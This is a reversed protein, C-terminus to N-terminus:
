PGIVTTRTSAFDDFYLTGTVNGLNASPGLRVADLRFVATNLGTLTYLTGNLTLSATASAGAQWAIEIWNWGTSLIPQWGTFTLGNGSRVGYRVQPTGGSTRYQVQFLSLGTADVGQFIVLTSGNAATGNRNFYFRAHYQADLVPTGNTVYGGTGGGIVAQMGYLGTRAAAGTVSLGTGTTSTWASFSGSEFGDAFIANPLTTVVVVVSSTPGWNGAADKARVKVTHSTGAAWGTSNVDVTARVAETPSNFSGDVAVMPHGLGPGPDIGEVWEAGAIWTPVPAGAPDPDTATATLDFTAQGVIPNPSAAVNSVAPGTRDLIVAVPLVAGWNGVADQGHVYFTHPGETLANITTLPIWAYALESPTNFQGDLPTFRFGDGNNVPPRPWPPNSGPPYDIFGEGRRIASQVGGGGGSLLDQLRVNFRLSPTLPNYGIRGNTPNPQVSAQDSVPGTKDVDLAAGAWAGWNGLADQARVEILHRGEALAGMALAPITGDLSVVPAVPTPTLPVSAGGGIRYEGATVNSGGTMSDDGTARIAVAITGNSIPPNLRIGSTVPGAKDLNLVVYNYTGWNGLSDQGRVYITHMGAPLLSMDAVAITGRVAETPSDFSGDVAAMPHAPNTTADIAFEAASILNDGRGVDSVSGTLLVDVTGNAPNPVLALSGAVPGQPAGPDASSDIFTLMGGYLPMGTTADRAGNNHLLGSAEYLPFRTPPVNVGDPAAGRGQALLPIVVLADATDGAPLLESTLNRYFPLQSGGLSLFQQYLGLVAMTHIQQGANVYRLLLTQGAVVSIPVTDPYAKGNLLFYRAKYSRMDFAAPNAATNLAPDIESLVIPAEVNFATAADNYAYGPGLTPRVILAGYLGMPVQYQTGPLQGAEYLYIGPEAAVFSYVQTGGPPAGAMDPIISQGPFNLATPVTLGNHLTVNVTDGQTVVLSPGPVQAPGGPALSYGWVPVTAAGPLALTGPLAYLDFAVIAQPGSGVGPPQPGAFAQRPGIGAALLALVLLLAATAKIKALTRPNM